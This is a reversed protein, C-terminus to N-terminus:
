GAIFDSSLAVGPVRQRIHDALEIYTERTYGRRMRELVESNGSQAPVHLQACVNPRENVLDLLEDPFDKPHPSTFRVRLNPCADSVAAVLEAFTAGRVPAKYVTSFGDRPERKVDDESASTNVGGEVFNYSNM